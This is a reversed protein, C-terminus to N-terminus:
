RKNSYQVAVIEYVIEIRSSDTVHYAIVQKSGLRRTRTGTKLSREVDYMYRDFVLHVQEYRNFLCTVKRCFHDSLDKCTKISKPKDLTQVIVMADVIAIRDTESSPDATDMALAPQESQKELITMLQSKDSCHNMLGDASFLARPVM